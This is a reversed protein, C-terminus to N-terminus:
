NKKEYLVTGDELGEILENSKDLDYSIMIKKVHGGLRRVIGQYIENVNRKLFKDTDNTDGNITLYRPAKGILDISLVFSLSLGTDVIDHNATIEFSRYDDKKAFSTTNKEIWDNLTLGIEMSYNLESLICHIGEIVTESPISLGEDFETVIYYYWGAM